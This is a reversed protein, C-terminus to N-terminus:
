ANQCITLNWVNKCTVQQHDRCRYICTPLSYTPLLYYTIFVIYIPANTPRIVQLSSYQGCRCSFSEDKKKSMKVRSFSVSISDRFTMLLCLFSVLSSRLTKYGVAYVYSHQCFNLTISLLLTPHHSTKLLM